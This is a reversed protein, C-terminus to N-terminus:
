PRSIRAKTAIQENLATILKACNKGLGIGLEVTKPSLTARVQTGDRMVVVATGSDNPSFLEFAEIHGEGTVGARCLSAEVSRSLPEPLQCYVVSSITTPHSMNWNVQNPAVPRADEIQIECDAPSYALRETKATTCGALLGAAVITLATRM